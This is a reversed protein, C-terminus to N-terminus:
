SWFRWWPRRNRPAEALTNPLGSASDNSRQLHFEGETLPTGDTPNPDIWWRGDLVLGDSSLEGEYHVQHDANRVGVLHDGVQYGSFSVGQYCKLFYISSGSRQGRLMSNRPLKSVFQIPDTPANPVMERLNAELQEADASSMGAALAAEAASYSRDPEGDYM